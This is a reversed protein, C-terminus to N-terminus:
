AANRRIKISVRKNPPVSIAVRPMVFTLLARPPAGTWLEAEVEAKAQLWHSLAKGDPCGEQQWILYSRLRVADELVHVDIDAMAIEEGNIKPGESFLM